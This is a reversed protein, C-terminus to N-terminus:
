LIEYKNELRSVYAREGEDAWGADDSREEFLEVFCYILLSVEFNILSCVCFLKKAAACFVFAIM